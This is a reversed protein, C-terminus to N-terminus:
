VKGRVEVLFARARASLASETVVAIVAVIVAPRLTVMTGPCMLHPLLRFLTGNDLSLPLHRYTKEPRSPSASSAAGGSTVGGSAEAVPGMAPPPESDIERCRAILESVRRLVAPNCSFAIELLDQAKWPAAGSVADLVLAPYQM